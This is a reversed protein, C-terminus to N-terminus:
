RRTSRAPKSCPRRGGQTTDARGFDDALRIIDDEGLYSGTQVEIFVLESRGTSRIRHAAGLPIRVSEGRGLRLERGELTVLGSGRVVTWQEQRRRHKQYSLRKGALVTIRKVKYGPEERLIEWRGWPRRDSRENM